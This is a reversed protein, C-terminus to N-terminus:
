GPQGNLSALLRRFGRVYAQEDFETRVRDAAANGLRAALERDRLIRSLQAALHDPDDPRFLVSETELLIRATIEAADSEGASRAPPPLSSM